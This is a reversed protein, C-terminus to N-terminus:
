LSEFGVSRLVDYTKRFEIKPPVFIVMGDRGRTLLVRYTNERYTRAMGKPSYERDKFKSKLDWSTGNWLFDKEWCVIPMDIELGQCGFETVPKTLACCSLVDDVPANFWRAPFTRTQKTNDYTNNVGYEPLVFSQSSALLGYRKERDDQYHERCFEKARDIEQTIYVGYFSKCKQYLEAAQDIKGAVLANICNSLNIACNSRLSNTLSLRERLPDEIIKCGHYNAALSPSCLVEWQHKSNCIAERWLALGNEEGTNIEQGTGVLVLLFCWEVRQDILEIMLSAESLEAFKKGKKSRQQATWTRQGEDFICVNFDFDKAGDDTYQDLYVHINKVFSDSKLADQLVAVLPGNGSMYTSKINLTEHYIGYALDIGLLTKGAGPVGNVIALVHKKEKQALCVNNKLCQEAESIGTKRLVEYEPLKINDKKARAAEVITPLIRYPADIWKRLQSMPKLESMSSELMNALHGKSVIHVMGEKHPEIKDTYTLMLIPIISKMQGTESHYLFLNRAYEETQVRDDMLVSKKRKFELIALKEESLLLVDPRKHSTYRLVYEFIIHINPNIAAFEKLEERLIEFCDKWSEIQADSIKENCIQKINDQMQGLWVPKEINMFNSLTDAYCYKM